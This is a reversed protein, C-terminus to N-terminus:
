YKLLTSIYHSAPAAVTAVQPLKAYTATVALFQPVASTSVIHLLSSCNRPSDAGADALVSLSAGLSHVTQPSSPLPLATRQLNVPVLLTRQPVNCYSSQLVQLSFAFMQKLTVDSLAFTYNYMSRNMNQGKM